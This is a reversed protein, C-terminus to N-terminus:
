GRFLVPPSPSTLAAKGVAKRSNFTSTRTSIGPNDEPIPRVALCAFLLPTRREAETEPLSAAITLSMQTSTGSKMM